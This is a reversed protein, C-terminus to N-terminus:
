CEAGDDHCGFEACEREWQESGPSSTECIYMFAVGALDSRYPEIKEGWLRNILLLAAQEKEPIDLWRRAHDAWDDTM